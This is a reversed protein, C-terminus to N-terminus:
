TLHMAGPAPQDEHMTKQVSSGAAITLDSHESAAGDKNPFARVRLLTKTKQMSETRERGGLKGCTAQAHIPEPSNGEM